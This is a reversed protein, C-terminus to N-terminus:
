ASPDIRELQQLAREIRQAIRRAEAKLPSGPEARDRVSAAEEHAVGLRTECELAIAKASTLERSM